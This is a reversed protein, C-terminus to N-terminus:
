SFHDFICTEEFLFNLKGGLRRDRVNLWSVCERGLYGMIMDALYNVALVVTDVGCERLSRLAYDILPVDAM